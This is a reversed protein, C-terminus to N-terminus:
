QVPPRTGPSPAYSSSELEDLLGLLERRFSQTKADETFPDSQERSASSLAERHALDTEFYDIVAAALAESSPPVVMSDDVATVVSKAGTTETVIAPIGSRMAEVVSVGFTEIYAPHVYLSADRFDADVSDVFGRLTVGPVDAYESPHGRGIIRLEAEPHRERVASWADVLMDVGKHARWEGVTVAVKSELNPEIRELASYQEPQIYPTAVRVPYSPGGFSRIRERGFESVTISGDCYRTLIRQLLATDARCNVRRKLRQFPTDAGRPVYVWGLLRDSTALHIITADPYRRRIFPAAYLVADNEILYVDQEPISASAASFVDAAFTDRFPEPLQRFPVVIDTADVARAFGRHAPHGYDTRKRRTPGHAVAPYVMGIDVDIAM